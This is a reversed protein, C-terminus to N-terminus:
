HEFFNEISPVHSSVEERASVPQDADSGALWDTAYGAVQALTADQILRTAVAGLAAALAGGLGRRPGRASTREGSVLGAIAGAAFAIGIVQWPHKAAHAEIKPKLADLDLNM